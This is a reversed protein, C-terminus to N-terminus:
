IPLLSSTNLFHFLLGPLRAKGTLIQSKDHQCLFPSNLIITNESLFSKFLDGFAVGENEM